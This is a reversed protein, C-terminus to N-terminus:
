LGVVRSDAGHTGEGQCGKDGHLVLANYVNTFFALKEVHSLMGVDVLQLQGALQAADHIAQETGLPQERSSMVQSIPHM